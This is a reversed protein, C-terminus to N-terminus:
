TRCPCMKIWRSRLQLRQLFMLIATSVDLQGVYWEYDEDTCPCAQEVAIPDRFKDGM